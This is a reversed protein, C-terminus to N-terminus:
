KAGKKRKKRAAYREDRKKKQEAAMAEALREAEEREAAERAAQEAALREAEEKRRLAEAEKAAKREAQRQERAAAVAAREAQKQLVAPDDVKAKFREILAQKSKAQNALRDTIKDTFGSM